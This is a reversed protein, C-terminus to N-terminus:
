RVPDFKWADRTFSTFIDVEADQGADVVVIKIQAGQHNWVVFKQHKPQRHHLRISGGFQSRYRMAIGSLPGSVWADRGSFMNLLRPIYLALDVVLWTAQQWWSPVISKDM